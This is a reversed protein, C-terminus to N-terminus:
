VFSGGVTPGVITFMGESVLLYREIRSFVLLQGKM